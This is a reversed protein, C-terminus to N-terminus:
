GALRHPRHERGTHAAPRGGLGISGSALHLISPAV